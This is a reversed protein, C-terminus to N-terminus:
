NKVPNRSKLADLVQASLKPLIARATSPKTMGAEAGSRGATPENWYLTTLTVLVAVAVGILILWIRDQLSKM